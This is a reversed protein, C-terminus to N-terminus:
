NLLKVNFNDYVRKEGKTIISKHEIGDKYFCDIEKFTNKTSQLTFVVKNCEQISETFTILQGARIKITKHIIERIPKIEWGNETLIKGTRSRINQLNINKNVEDENVLGHFETILLGARIYEDKSIKNVQRLKDIIQEPNIHSLSEQNLINITINNVITNNVTININGNTDNTGNTDKTDQKKISSCPKKRSLHRKLDYNDRCSKNCFTCLFSM